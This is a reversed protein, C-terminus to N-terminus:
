ATEKIEEIEQLAHFLMERLQDALVFTQILKTFVPHNTDQRNEHYIESALEHLLADAERTLSRADDLAELREACSDTMVGQAVRHPIKRMLENLRPSLLQGSSANDMAEHMARYMRCSQQWIPDNQLQQLNDM